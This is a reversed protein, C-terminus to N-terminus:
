LQDLGGITFKDLSEKNIKEIKKTILTKENPITEYYQNTEIDHSIVTDTETILLPASRESELNYSVPYASVVGDIVYINWILESESYYLMSYLPHTKDSASDIETDAIPNGNIDCNAIINETTFGRETLLDAAGKESIVNKSDTVKKVSIVKGTKSYYEDATLESMNIDETQEEDKSLETELAKSSNESSSQLNHSSAKETELKNNM